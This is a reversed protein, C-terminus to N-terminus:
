RCNPIDYCVDDKLIIMTVDVIQELFSRQEPCLIGNIKLTGYTTELQLLSCSTVTCEAEDELCICNNPCGYVTFLLSIGICISLVM